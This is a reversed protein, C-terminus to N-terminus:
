MRRRSRGMPIWMMLRGEPVYAFMGEGTRLLVGEEYGDYVALPTMPCVYAEGTGGLEQFVPETGTVCYGYVRGDKGAAIGELSELAPEYVTELSGDAGFCIARGGKGYNYLIVKGDRTITGQDLQEGVGELEEADPERRWLLNGDPGYKELRYGTTGEEGDYLRWFIFCNGEKDALLLPRNMEFLYEIDTMAYLKEEYGDTIRKRTIGYYPKQLEGNEDIKGIETHDAIYLWESNIAHVSTYPSIQMDTEMYHFDAVATIGGDGEPSIGITDQRIASASQEEGMGFASDPNERAGCSAALLSLFLIAACIRRKYKTGTGM